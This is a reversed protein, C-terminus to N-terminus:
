GQLAQRIASATAPGPDVAFDLRDALAEVAEVCSAPLLAMRRARTIETALIFERSLTPSITMFVPVGHEEDIPSVIGLCDTWTERDREASFEWIDFPEAALWPQRMLREQSYTVLPDTM